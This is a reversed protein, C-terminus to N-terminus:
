ILDKIDKLNIKLSQPRPVSLKTQIEVLFTYITKRIDEYKLSSYDKLVYWNKQSFFSDDLDQLIKDHFASNNINSNNINILFIYKSYKKTSSYSKKMFKKINNIDNFIMINIDCIVQTQMCIPIKDYFAVYYDVKKFNYLYDLDFIKTILSNNICNQKCNLHIKKFLSDLGKDIDRIKIIGILPIFINSDLIKTAM